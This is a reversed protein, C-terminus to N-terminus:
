DLPLADAVLTSGSGPTVAPHEKVRHSVPLM